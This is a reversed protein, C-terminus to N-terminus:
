KKVIIGLEELSIEREINETEEENLQKLKEKIPNLSTNEIKINEQEAYLKEYFQRM